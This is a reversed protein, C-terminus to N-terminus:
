NVLERSDLLDFNLKCDMFESSTAFVDDVFCNSYSSYLNNQFELYDFGPYIFLQNILCKVTVFSDVGSFSLCNMSLFYDFSYIFKFMRATM